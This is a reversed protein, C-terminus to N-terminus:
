RSIVKYYSNWAAISQAHQLVNHKVCDFGRKPDTTNYAMETFVFNSQWCSLCKEWGLVFNIERKLIDIIFSFLPFSVFSCYIWKNKIKIEQFLFLQFCLILRSFFYLRTSTWSKRTGLSLLRENKEASLSTHPTLNIIELAERYRQLSALANCLQININLLWVNFLFPSVSFLSLLVLM